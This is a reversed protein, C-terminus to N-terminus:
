GTIIPQSSYGGGLIAAYFIISLLCLTGRMNGLNYIILVRMALVKDIRSM